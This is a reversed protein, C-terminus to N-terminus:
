DPGAATDVTEFSPPFESGTERRETITVLPELQEVGDDLSVVDEPNEYDVIDFDALKPLHTHVLSVFARKRTDALGAEVATEALQRVTAPGNTRLAYIVCRRYASSLLDCSRDVQEHVTVSDNGVM